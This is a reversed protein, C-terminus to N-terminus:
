FPRILSGFADADPDQPNNPQEPINHTYIDIGLNPPYPNRNTVVSRNFYVAGALADLHKLRQDENSRQFDTHKEDKWMGVRLQHRLIRCRAKVKFRGERIRKRLAHIAALRDTKEPLYVTYKHRAIIDILVQKDADLVRRYPPKGDWLEKERRKAELVKEDSGKGHSIYEDEIVIWDNLFDYYGFLIAANDDVGNDGGVYADFFPPRPHDDPLVNSGGETDDWEPVIQLEPDPIEECLAERRWAVSGMGGLEDALEQLAEATLSQNDTSLRKIYRDERMAKEKDAYWLHGLDKPPTSLKHLSGRTTLLQSALVERLIYSPEKWSGLEDATIGHAFSGRASEGKDENVGRLYLRSGTAPYEYFSDTKYFKFQYKKPIIRQINSVEPMVIERAQYKWPECWRWVWGENQILNELVFTLDITTKGFRRGCEIVPRKTQHMLKYVPIQDDRLYWAAIIGRRWLDIRASKIQADTLSSGM